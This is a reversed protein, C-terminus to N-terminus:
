TLLDNQFIWNWHLHKGVAAGTEDAEIDSATEQRKRIEEYASDAKGGNEKLINQM